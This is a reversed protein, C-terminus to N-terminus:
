NFFNIFTNNGYNGETLKIIENVSYSKKKIKNNEIFQKVGYQCAGTVSRYMVICDDYSYKKDKDINKYVSLDKKTIKYKLDVKAEQITKGHAHLGNGDTVVYFYEEKNIKKCKIVKGKQEIKECFIRDVSIYNTDYSSNM